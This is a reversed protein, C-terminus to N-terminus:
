HPRVGYFREGSGVAVFEFVTTRSAPAVLRIGSAMDAADMMRGTVRGNSLVRYTGSLGHTKLMFKMDTKERFNFVAVIRNGNLDYTAQQLASAGVSTPLYPYPRALRCETEPTATVTTSDDTRIGDWVYTEYRAARTTANAFARWYRADYGQPFYYVVSAEWRNFFFADLAMEIFEPETICDICQRGHPFALLRPRRGVDPYDRDVTERVDKAALFYPLAWADDAAFPARVNWWPYPGWPDIWKLAGAYDIAQVEAASNNPRWYSSMECWAIGPIFGLSKEGGTLARVHRDVAQVLQGHRISRYKTVKEHWKGGIGLEKPWDRTMEADTVGVYKAFDARCRTCMCGQRNFMYPEWNAWVGDCGKVRRAIGPVTNTLFFPREEIVALPCTAMDREANRDLAVYRDESPRGRPDGVRFGNALFYYEPTLTRMGTERLMALYRADTKYPMYWRVGATAMFEAFVRDAAADAFTTCTGGPTLGNQYRKPIEAHIEPVVFLHTTGVNSVRKGDYEVWFRCLGEDGVKGNTKLLCGLMGWANFDETPAHGQVGFAPAFSIREGGGSLPERELTHRASLLADMWRVCSPLEIRWRLRDTEYTRGDPARKWELGLVGCQNESIAFDHSFVGHAGQRVTVPGGEPELAISFNRFRLEGVGDIRLIVKLGNFGSPVRLTRTFFFWESDGGPVDFISYPGVPAKPVQRGQRDLCVGCAMVTSQGFESRHRYEFSIRVLCGSSVGIAATCDYAGSVGAAVTRDGGCLALLSPLKEIRGEGNEMTWRVHQRCKRRIPSDSPVKPSHVYCYGTGWALANTPALNDPVSTRPFLKTSEARFDFTVGAGWASAAACLAAGALMPARM